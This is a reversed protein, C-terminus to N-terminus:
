KQVIDIVGAMEAFFRLLTHFDITKVARDTVIDGAAGIAESQKFTFFVSEQMVSRIGIARIPMSLAIAM